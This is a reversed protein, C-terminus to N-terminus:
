GDKREGGGDVVIFRDNGSGGGVGSQVRAFLRFDLGNDRPLGIFRGGRLDKVLLTDLVVAFDSGGRGVGRQSQIMDEHEGVEFGTRNVLIPNFGFVRGAIAGQRFGKSHEGGDLFFGDNINNALIELRDKAPGLM